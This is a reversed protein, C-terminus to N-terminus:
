LPPFRMGRFVHDPPGMIVFLDLEFPVQALALATSRHNGDLLLVTGDALRYAPVQAHARGEDRYQRVLDLIHDRGPQPFHAMRAAVEAIPLSRTGITKLFRPNLRKFRVWFASRLRGLEAPDVITGRHVPWSEVAFRSWDIAVRIDPFRESYTQAVLSTPQLGNTM